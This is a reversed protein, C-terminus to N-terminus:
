GCCCRSWCSQSQDGDHDGDINTRRRSSPAVTGALGGTPSRAAAPFDSLLRQIRRDSISAGFLWRRPLDGTDDTDDGGKPAGKEDKGEQGEEEKAPAGLAGRELQDVVNPNDPMCGLHVCLGEVSREVLGADGGSAETFYFDPLQWVMCTPQGLQAQFLEHLGKLLARTEERQSWERVLRRTQAIMDAAEAKTENRGATVAEGARAAAAAAGSGVLPERTPSDEAAREERAREIMRGLTAQFHARRGGALRRHCAARVASKELEYERIADGQLPHGVAALLAQVDASTSADADSGGSVILLVEQAATTDEGAPPDFVRECAWRWAPIGAAGPPLARGNRM